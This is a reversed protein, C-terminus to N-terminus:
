CHAWAKTAAQSLRPEGVTAKELTNELAWFTEGERGKLEYSPVPTGQPQDVTTVKRWYDSNYTYGKLPELMVSGKHIRTVKCRGLGIEQVNAIQGIKLTFPIM